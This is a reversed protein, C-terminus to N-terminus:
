SPKVSIRKGPGRDTRALSEVESRSLVMTGGIVLRTLRGTKDGVIARVRAPTVELIAAAEATSILEPKVM